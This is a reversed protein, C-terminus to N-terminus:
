MCYKFKVRKKEDNSRTAEPAIWASKAENTTTQGQQTKISGTNFMTEGNVKLANWIQYLHTKKGWACVFMVLNM